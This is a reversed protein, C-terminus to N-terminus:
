RVDNTVDVTLLGDDPATAPRGAELMASAAWEVSERVPSLNLRAYIATTQVQKHGLSRGIVSLSAGGRLQWSGLTRRLDHIRLNRMRAENPDLKLKKAQTRYNELVVAFPDTGRPMRRALAEARIREVEQNAADMMGDADVTPGRKAAIMVVLRALEARALIRQWATKPEVFHGSKSAASPLVWPSGATMVKRETLLEVVQPALIVVLDEGNKSKEGPIRWLGRSLDLDSWRMALVNARRAGTLLAVMFFDRATREPEAQLAAFFQRLEDGDMFRDRTREKFRQVGVAPNDGKWGRVRAFNFMKRLLAHARNAAFLGNAKGLRGHWSQVDATTISSLRRNRWSSLNADFRRQDEEWTRKRPKAHLELYDAFLAGLTSEERIARKGAQVDVGAAISGIKEQALKRAGEVTLGPWRGLTLDVPKGNVKRYLGFTKVGAATVRLCFGPMVTDYCRVQRSDKPPVFDRVRAETFAFRAPQGASGVASM